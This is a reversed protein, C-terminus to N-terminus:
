EEDTSLLKLTLTQHDIPALNLDSRANEFRRLFDPDMYSEDDMANWAYFSYIGPKIGRLRFNGKQDSEGRQYLDFQSRLATDPVGIVTANAVPKGNEDTVTGEVYAGDIGVSIQIPVAGRSANFHIVSDTVDRNGVQVSKTYFDEWGTGDATISVVYKGPSIKDLRITGDRGVAAYGGNGVFDAEGSSDDAPLLGVRLSDLRPHTTNPGDIRLTGQLSAKGADELTLSVNALDSGDVKVPMEAHMPADSNDGRFELAGLLYDGPLVGELTFNGNHDVSAGSARAVNAGEDHTNRLYIQTQGNVSGGNVHGTIKVAPVRTMRFDAEAQDGPRLAVPSAENPSGAEPYYSPAYHLKSPGVESVVNARVIYHGPELSFIRYSGQDDSTAMGVPRLQRRHNAYVWKLATVQVYAMPEGEEDNVKGAIVSGPQMAIALDTISQGPSLSVTLFEQWTRSNPGRFGHFGNKRVVLSYDGPVLSSFRFRGNTDTVVTIQHADASTDDQATTPEASRSLSIEANRIPEGSGYKTLAGALSSPKAAQQVAAPQALSLLSLLFCFATTLFVKM